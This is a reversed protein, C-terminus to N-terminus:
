GEFEAFPDIVKPKRRDSTLTSIADSVGEEALRGYIGDTIGVNAHMLNQSVAKLDKMDRATEVGYVGHGHRLKHPSRYKVGAMECLERMGQSFAMRRGTVIRDETVADKTDIRMGTGDLKTYWSLMESEALNRIYEDWRTVVGLLEPIPLLFTIAAKTNKTQVFFKPLQAVRRKKLDVCCVPLTVFAGIRMGSLFLFALAAQDRQYRLTDKPTPFTVVKIADELTWYV